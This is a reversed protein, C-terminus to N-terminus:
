TLTTRQLAFSPDLNALTRSRVTGSPRTKLKERLVRMLQSIGALGFYIRNSARHIELGQRRLENVADATDAKRRQGAPILWAFTPGDKGKDVSRKNKLWYNELFMDKNKATYNLAFLIASKQINVNNRPGWKILPLPPNPRFWERSTTLLPRDCQSRARCLVYLEAGM